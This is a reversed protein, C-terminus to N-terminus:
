NPLRDALAALATVIDVCESIDADPDRQLIKAKLAELVEDPLKNKELAEIRSRLNV